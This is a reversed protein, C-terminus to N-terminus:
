PTYPVGALYMEILAEDVSSERRRYCEIIATGSSLTRLKPVTLTVEGGQDRTEALPRRSDKRGESREYKKAGWLPDADADVLTNM